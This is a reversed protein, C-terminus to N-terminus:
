FSRPDIPWGGRNPGPPGFVGFHAEQAGFLPNAWLCWIKELYDLPDWCVYNKWNLDTEVEKM